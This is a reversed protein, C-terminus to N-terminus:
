HRFEVGDPVLRALGSPDVIVIRRKFQRVLGIETFRSLTLTVTQRRANIIHSLEEHTLFV